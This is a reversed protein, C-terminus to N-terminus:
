RNSDAQSWLAKGNSSFINPFNSEFNHKELLEIDCGNEKGRKLLVDLMLEEEKSTPVIIKGCDNISLKRDVIWQRM